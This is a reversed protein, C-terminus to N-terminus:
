TPWPIDGNDLVKKDEYPAAMRRYYELKACELVGIIDNIAGYSPGIFGYTEDTNRQKLYANCLSTILYNLQGTTTPM